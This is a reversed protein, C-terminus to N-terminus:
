RREEDFQNEFMEEAGLIYVYENNVSECLLTEAETLQRYHELSITLKRIVDNQKEVLGCLTEILELNTM